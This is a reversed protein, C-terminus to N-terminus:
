IIGEKEIANRPFYFQQIPLTSPDINEPLTYISANKDTSVKEM